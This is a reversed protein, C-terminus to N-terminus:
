LCDWSFHLWKVGPNRHKLHSLIINLSMKFIITINATSSPVPNHYSYFEEVNYAATTLKNIISTQIFLLWPRTLIQMDYFTQVRSFIILHLPVFFLGLIGASYITISVLSNKQLILVFFFIEETLHLWIHRYLSPNLTDRLGEHQQKSALKALRKLLHPVRLMHATKSTTPVRHLVEFGAPSSIPRNCLWRSSEPFFLSGREWIGIGSRKGGTDYVFDMAGVVCPIQGLQEEWSRATCPKASTCSGQSPLVFGNKAGSIYRAAAVTHTRAIPQGLVVSLVFKESFASGGSSGGTDWADPHICPNFSQLTHSRPSSSANLTNNTGWLRRYGGSSQTAM